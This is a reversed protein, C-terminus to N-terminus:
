HGDKKKTFIHDLVCVIKRYLVDCLLSIFVTLFHCSCCQKKTQKKGKIHTKIQGVSPESQFVSCSQPVFYSLSNLTLNLFRSNLYSIGLAQGYLSSLTSFYFAASSREFVYFLFLLLLKKEVWFYLYIIRYFVKRKHILYPCM